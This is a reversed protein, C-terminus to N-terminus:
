QDFVFSTSACIVNVRQKNLFSLSTSACIDNVLQKYSLGLACIIVNVLQKALIDIMRM